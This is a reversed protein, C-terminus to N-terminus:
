LVAHLRSGLSNRYTFCGYIHCLLSKPYLEMHRRYAPLMERLQRVEADSVTKLVFSRGDGAILLSCGSKAATRLSATNTRALEEIVREINVPWMCRLYAFTRPAIVTFLIREAGQRPGVCWDTQLAPHDDLKAAERFLRLQGM